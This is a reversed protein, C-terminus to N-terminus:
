LYLVDTAPSGVGAPCSSTLAPSNVGCCSNVIPATAGERARAGCSWNVKGQSFANSKRRLQLWVNMSRMLTSGLTPNKLINLKELKLRGGPVIFPQSLWVQPSQEDIVDEM